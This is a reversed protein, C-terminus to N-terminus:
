APAASRVMTFYWQFATTGAVAAAARDANLHYDCRVLGIPASKNNTQAMPITDALLHHLRLAYEQCVSRYLHPLGNPPPSLAATRSNGDAQVSSLGVLCIM